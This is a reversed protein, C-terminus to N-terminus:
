ESPPVIAGLYKAPTRGTQIREVPLEVRRVSVDLYLEDGRISYAVGQIPQHELHGQVWDFYEAGLTPNIEPNNCNMRTMQAMRKELGGPDQPFIRKEGDICTVENNESGYLHRNVMTLTYRNIMESVETRFEDIATNLRQIPIPLKLIFAPKVYISRRKIKIYDTFFRRVFEESPRFTEEAM